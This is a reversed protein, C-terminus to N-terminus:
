PLAEFMEGLAVVGRGPYAVVGLSHLEGLINNFHGNVTYRAREALVERDLRGGGSLLANFVRLRPETRLVRRVADVLDERSAPEKEVPPAVSAGDATLCLRGGAPYDILGATKLEGLVNNLHGNVTYGALFAAQHRTPQEIRAAQWWALAGLVRQAPKTAAIGDVAAAAPVGTSLGRAPKSKASATSLVPRSEPATASASIAYAPERVSPPATAPAIAAKLQALEGRLAEARETAATSISQLRSAIEAGMRATATELREVLTDARAIMAEARKLEDGQLVPVEVREVKAAPAAKEAAAVKRKLECIEKRLAAPDNAKQLEVLAGLEGTLRTVFMKTDVSARQPVTVTTERRDPHFSRLAATKTRVPREAEEAWVWCEGQTMHPLEKSIARSTEPSARDLWKELNGIANSGRQRLLVLNDCLELVAKNVEQARQNIITIGLNVNGGMRALKEVEAYTQGDIIKQPAYEAAEELFIHRLGKNEYLLTRFCHQVILRWDSKSLKADYLDIILPIKERIAARVIEPASQPTLPLDPSAGGAIVIPYGKANPGTGPTKLHRWVGIADFVVIPIDAGLLQEAIGKAAYTKGSRTIGLIGTRAVAFDLLPLQVSGITIRQDALKPSSAVAATM